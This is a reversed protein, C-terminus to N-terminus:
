VFGAVDRWAEPVPPDEDRGVAVEILGFPRDAAVFVEGPNDLGFPSLDVVFHHNNPMSFRIEAIEPHEELVRRGMDFLTAQLAASYREAFAELLLPHESFPRVPELQMGAPLAQTAADFYKTVSLTSFQPALPIGIVRTVGAAALDQLADRIFPTWNRMGVAVPIAPGLRDRLAAGQALTLTTLPSRGGIAAYNHRMEEILADSPPRGGRVLRLYEPMEDLSSPTGHAMLLIGTTM